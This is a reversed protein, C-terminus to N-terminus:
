ADDRGTSDARVVVWVRGLNQVRGFESSSDGARQATVRLVPFYTRPERCTQTARVEAAPRAPGVSHATFDGSGAFGWEAAVIRGAGPPATIHARFGVARGAAVEIRDGGAVALDVVPQIGRQVGAEGVVAVQGGSVAYRTSRAPAVGREVWASVDRLAQQVMGMAGAATGVFQRRSWRGM